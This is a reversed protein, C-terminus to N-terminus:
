RLNKLDIINYPEGFPHPKDLGKVVRGDKLVALVPARGANPGTPFPTGRFVAEAGLADKVRVFRIGEIRSAGEELIKVKETASVPSAAASRILDGLEPNGRPTKPITGKGTMVAENATTVRSVLTSDSAVTERTTALLGSNNHVLVGNWGVAYCELEDVQFNYVHDRYPETRVRRMPVVQGRYLLVQDGVRLDGADVWRGPGETGHPISPLHLRRPRDELAEGRVVWFPHLLTAQITEETEAGVTVFVAHGEYAVRFTQLVRRPRWVNAVLDYAWVTDGRRVKEIVLLGEPTAM